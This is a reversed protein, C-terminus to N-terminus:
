RLRFRELAKQDLEIGLGPGKPVPIAGDVPRLPTTLLEDRLPNDGVDYELYPPYVANDSQPYAPQAAMLHVAAALGVAGGWVHPSFRVHRLMCLDAVLKGQSLGGCLTLDPQAIDLARPSLMRDFDFATYLAEGTAVPISATQALTRYGDFDQPALPEEYWFVDFDQIRKVSARLSDLTYNGNADVMLHAAPFATRALVVRERDSAPNLGIKIKLAGFGGGRLRELQAPLQNTPDATIYGGSAYVPVSDRVKGGLLQYVPVGFTKGIADHLAIDIGSLLWILANQTGFHYHRALILHWQARFDFLSKGVFYGRVFELYSAVMGPPGWAEGIGVVGDASTVRVITASRRPVLGRASGYAKGPPLDYAM